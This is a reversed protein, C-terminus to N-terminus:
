NNKDFRISSLLYRDPITTYVTYDVLDRGPDIKMLEGGLNRRRASLRTAGPGGEEAESGGRDEQIRRAEKGEV